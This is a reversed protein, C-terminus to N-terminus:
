VRKSYNMVDQILSTMNNYSSGGEDMARRAKEGLERARNRREEGEEGPDMLTEIAKQVEEKKVLLVGSKEEVQWASPTKVGLGVGTKVVDLVLKENLFQDAFMPWTIMPLGASICELTSNWGCHTFFGGIAPHSLILLQPAWGKIILCRGRTREEFGESLWQDVEAAKEGARIVWIFPHNSVELGLGIEVLQQTTVLGLSGFSVYVVSRPAKDDLWGLCLNEDISAKNGRDVKGSSMTTNDRLAMPGITWIKKGMTEAYLQDYGHELEQFSNVVVGFSAAESELIEDRLGQMSSNNGFNSPHQARTIEVRHPIGPVQIPEDDAVASMFGLHQATKSTWPLGMDSVICSAPPQLTSLYQEAAPRLMATASFFNVILEKSPLTDLNECGDPLGAEQCPFPLEVLRIPLGADAALDVTARFRSANVPTTIVSALVGRAAFLRAMDVMPIMHGQAMLPILVFHPSATTDSNWSAMAAALEAPASSSRKACTLTPSPSVNKKEVLLMMEDILRTLSEHSSGGVEMAKRAIGKAHVDKKEVLLMMEDILRTLSEHSSGGVEMAERAMKGLERARRRREEGEEGAEMLRNVAKEVEERRIVVVRMEKGSWLPDKVGVEVGVRLVQVIFRENLFQDAFGPWTLMPVGATIAELTSNWGCHTLFGGVAPHSLITMQPAWGRIILGREKTREEFGEAIWQEVEAQQLGAKVSWIFPRGTAELGLAIEVVQSLSSKILSGFSIYLVSQPQMSDLWSLCKEEGIAAKDGRAAKDMAHKNRLSVPGISWVKKGKAKEYEEIYDPELAAFNNVVVGHSTIEAESIDDNLQKLGPLFGPAQPRTVEVRLPLDPVAVPTADDVSEYAKHRDLNHACLLTFCCMSYFDFRPVGLDRAVHRTWPYSFDSVICCPLPPNRRLHLLLPERLMESAAFFNKLSEPDTILDVNEAGAPLGAEECPFQLPVFRLPLGSEEVREVIPKIRALNVPTTILSVLVGREALLRAFDVAPIMHGQAMLPVLVFHLKAEEASGM